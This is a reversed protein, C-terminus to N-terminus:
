GMEHFVKLFKMFFCLYEKFKACKPVRPGALLWGQSDCRLLNLNIPDNTIGKCAKRLQGTLVPRGYLVWSVEGDPQVDYWVASLVFRILFALYM